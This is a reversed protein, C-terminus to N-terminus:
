LRKATGAAVGTRSLRDIIAAAQHYSLGGPIPTGTGPAVSPDLCDIDFTLYVPGDGMQDRVEEMLGAPTGLVLTRVDVDVWLVWWPRDLPAEALNVPQLRGPGVLALLAAEARQALKQVPVGPTVAFLIHRLQTQQGHTFRPKHADYYRQCADPTPEPTQVAADLMDEILQQQEASLTPALEGSDETLLGQRVAEQRLVEGWARERVTELDEGPGIHLRRGNIRVEPVTTAAPTMDIAASSCGCSGSGCGGPSQAQDLVQEM